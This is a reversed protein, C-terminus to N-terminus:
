RHDLVITSANESAVRVPLAATVDEVFVEPQSTHFVGSVRLDGLSSDALIIQKGGYRNLDAVTEGLPAADLILRGFRWAQAKAVDVDAVVVAAAPAFQAQEGAKMIALPHDQPAIGSERTLREPAVAVRQATGRYLAVVGEELIVRAKDGDRRVDFATGLARVEDEGAFVRFPRSADKAVQFFAQGKELTIRRETDTLRVRLRSQTNLMISSGDALTIRRQEGPATVFLESTAPLLIFGVGAAAAAAAFGGAGIFLRRNFRAPAIESVPRAAGLIARAEDNDGLDGVARWLADHAAYREQNAPDDALWAAFAEEDGRTRQDSDMRIVWGAAEEEPNPDPRKGASRAM